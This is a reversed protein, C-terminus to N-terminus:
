KLVGWKSHGGCTNDGTFLTSKFTGICKAKVSADFTVMKMFADTDRAGTWYQCTGCYKIQSSITKKAM